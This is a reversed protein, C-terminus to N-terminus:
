GALHRERSFLEGVARWRRAYVDRYDENSEDDGVNNKVTELREAWRSTIESGRHPFLRALFVAVPELNGGVRSISMDLRVAHAGIGVLPESATADVPVLPGADVPLTFERLKPCHVAFSAVSALTARIRGQLDSRPVGRPPDYPIAEIHLMEIIPLRRAVEEYDEDSLDLASSHMIQLYILNSFFHADVLTRFFSISLTRSPGPTVSKKFNLSLHTLSHYTPSSLSPHFLQQLTAHPRPPICSISLRTINSTLSPHKYLADAVSKFTSNITLSRLSVFSGSEPIASTFDGLPAIQTPRLQVYTPHGVSLHKLEPLAAIAVFVSESLLYFPLSLTVLHPLSRIFKSLEMELEPPSPEAFHSVIEWDLTLTTLNPQIANISRLIDTLDEYHAGAACTLYMDRVTPLLFTRIRPETMNDFLRNVSIVFTSRTVAPFITSMFSPGAPDPHINRLRIIRKLLESTLKSHVRLSRVRKGYFKLRELHNSYAALDPGDPNLTDEYESPSAFPIVAVSPPKKWIVDLAAESFVNEFPIWTTFPQATLSRVAATVAM